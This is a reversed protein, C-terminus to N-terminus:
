NDLGPKELIKWLVRENCFKGAEKENRLMLLKWLLVFMGYHFEAVMRM